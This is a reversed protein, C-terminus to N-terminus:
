VRNAGSHMDIWRLVWIGAQYWRPSDLVIGWILGGSAQYLVVLCCADFVKDSHRFVQVVSTYEQWQSLHLTSLLFLHTFGQLHAMFAQFPSSFITGELGFWFHVTSGGRSGHAALGGGWRM